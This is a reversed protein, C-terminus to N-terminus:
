ELTKLKYLTKFYIGCLGDILNEIATVGKSIESRNDSVWKVEDEIYSVINRPLKSSPLEPISIVGFVGQYTEVIDDIHEVVGIYLENLASHKAFSKTKLHELHLLNRTTFVKSVLIEIM